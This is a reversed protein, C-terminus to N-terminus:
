VRERCSARGIECFEVFAWRGYTKLNNVGPVWYNEMTSKKEKADERRYGKIEDILQLYDPTGDLRNPHGDNILVIFDPRYRRSESGFKYPAELGLNHNKVYALVKPHSEAVRCFEAELREEPLEVRYGEVRPFRIELADRDPRIAKVHITERPPQPPAIVPKATFDFPIGLVDAYEVNFLGEENLDYSQRRLARGIVQECLLQTGFARVGLVHTVTNADWGETLMSVSVVCRIAEGLRGQKGVTNMVERLLEQDTITDAARNDGTREIIERRFRDIEDAAM